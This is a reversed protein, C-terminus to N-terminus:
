QRLRIDPVIVSPKFDVVYRNSGVAQPELQEVFYTVDADSSCGLLVFSLVPLALFKLLKM